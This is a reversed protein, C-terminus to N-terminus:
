LIIPSVEQSLSSCDMDTHNTITVPFPPLSAAPTPAVELSLLTRSPVLRSAPPVRQALAETRPCCSSTPHGYPCPEPPVMHPQLYLIPQLAPAPSRLARSLVLLTLPDSHGSSGRGTAIQHSRSPLLPGSHSPFQLDGPYLRGPLGPLVYAEPVWFPWGPSVVQWESPACVGCTNGGGWRGVAAIVERPALFHPGTLGVPWMVGDDRLPWSRFQLPLAGGM